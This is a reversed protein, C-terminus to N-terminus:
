GISHKSLESTLRAIFVNMSVSALFPKKQSDLLKNFKSLSITMFGPHRYISNCVCVCIIYWTSLFFLFSVTTLICLECM